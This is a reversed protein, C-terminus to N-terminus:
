PARSFHHVAGAVDTVAVEVADAGFVIQPARGGLRMRAPGFAIDRRLELAGAALTAALASSEHPRERGYDIPQPALTVGTGDRQSIWTHDQLIALGAITDARILRFQEFARCWPRDNRVLGDLDAVVYHDGCRLGVGGDAFTEVTMAAADNSAPFGIAGDSQIFSVLRERPPDGGAAVVLRMCAGALEAALNLPAIGLPQHRIRQTADDFYVITDHHTVLFFRDPAAAHAPHPSPWWTGENLARAGRFLADIRVKGLPINADDAYNNPIHAIRAFAPVADDQMSVPVVYRSHFPKPVNEFCLGMAARERVGWPSVGASAARDFSRTRVYEQALERDLIFCPNYANPMNIMAWGDLAVHPQVPVYVPSFADSAVFGAQAVSFETRVFAPLLGTARLQERFELFYCFNAFSLHIDDEIYIFHSHRNDNMEVFESALIAKHCWTLDFPDALDAYSRVSGKKAPLAEACLRRLPALDEVGFTNTVIVVDMAAVPFEGLSRLVQALFPLRAAVFHFTIAVLVRAERARELALTIM